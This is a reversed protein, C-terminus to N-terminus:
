KVDFAWTGEKFIAVEKGDKTIGTISLDRSGIMFDVHIMSNNIGNKHYEENTMNEYGKLCDPFGRGLALHCCANEDYLTEYFLIGSMNIPSEFPVLACEGLMGAGEDMKVMQKLLEEGKEAKVDSVKGNKFTISFNEILQGQYSLPKTAYVVGECDGYKPSTFIEESPINPNFRVGSLTTDFGGHFVGLKNLGM